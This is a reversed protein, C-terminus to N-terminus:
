PVLGENRKRDHDATTRGAVAIGDDLRDAMRARGGVASGPPVPPLLGTAPDAGRPAPLPRRVIRRGLRAWQEPKYSVRCTSCIAEVVKGTKRDSDHPIHARLEGNCAGEEYVQPCPGIPVVRLDAPHDIHAWIRASITSLADLVKGADPDLVIVPVRYELWRAMGAVAGIAAVPSYAACRCGRWWCHRLFPVVTYHRSHAHGCGCPLKEGLKVLHEVIWRLSRSLDAAIDASDLDLVLPTGASGVATREGVVDQRALTILLDDYLAPIEALRQTLLSRDARCLFGNFSPRGCGDLVCTPKM